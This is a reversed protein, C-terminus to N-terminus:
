HPAECFFGVEDLGEAGHVVFGRESGLLRLAEAMLPGLSKSHVGVVVRRPRAPNTLPGLLNFITPVGIERRIPAVHKMAPHYTQAFLFAFRCKRLVGPVSEPSINALHCGLSELVDASGSSSSAARNGHQFPLLAREDAFRVAIGNMWSVKAVVCGAGAAVLGSATSVNFTNQGDGGTGVIDVLAEILDKDAVADFPIQLAHSRMVSACAAIVTPDDERQYLKLGMLFAAAQAPTATNELIHTFAARAAADFEGNMSSSPRALQKLIAQFDSM